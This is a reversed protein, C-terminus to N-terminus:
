IFDSIRSKIILEKDKHTETPEEKITDKIRTKRINKRYFFINTM